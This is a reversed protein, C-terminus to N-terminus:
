ATSYSADVTTYGAALLAAGHPVSERWARISRTESVNM